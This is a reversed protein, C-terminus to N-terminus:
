RSCSLRKEALDDRYQEDAELAESASNFEGSMKTSFWRGSDDQRWGRTYVLVAAESETKRETM